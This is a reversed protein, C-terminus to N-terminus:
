IKNEDSRRKWAQATRGYDWYLEHTADLMQRIQDWKERASAVFPHWQCWFYKIHPMIGMGIMYPLLVFEGGEINMQCLDVERIPDKTPVGIFFPYVDVALVMHPDPGDPNVLSAGDRGYNNIQMESNHTWLAFQYVKANYGTLKERANDAAWTQPEFIHLQPNYKEAMALAWRGEYGGIEWVISNENVHPWDISFHGTGEVEM